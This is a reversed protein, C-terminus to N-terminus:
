DIKLIKFRRYVNTLCDFCLIEGDLGNQELIIKLVEGAQMSGAIGCTVNVIGANVCSNAASEQLLDLSFLDTLRIKRHHNLVTVYGEWGRVAAHVLPKGLRACTEDILIRSDVTDTADCIIDYVDILKEANEADLFSPYAEIEIQPNLQRLKEALVEAKSRGTEQATFMFQRHLNTSEIRDGDVIGLKGVGAGALYTAVPNGLGGAGIVLVKAELIRQQGTLGIEGVRVQQGYQQM